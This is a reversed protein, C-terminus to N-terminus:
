TKAGEREGRLKKALETDELALIQVAFMAANIAGAKGIAMTAVPVGKPMQVISLLADLGGLSTGALPVGIVPLKTHAAVAGPLHAAAGAGAIIVKIGREEATRAYERTKDPTRHASAVVVDCEVGYKELTEATNTMVERDSESGMLVAVKPM